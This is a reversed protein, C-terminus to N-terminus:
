EMKTKSHLPAPAGGELCGVAREAIEQAKFIAADPVLAPAETVYCISNRHITEVVPFSREEGDRSRVLM